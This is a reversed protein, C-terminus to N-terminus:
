NTFDKYCVGAESFLQGLQQFRPSIRVKYPHPCVSIGFVEELNIPKDDASEFKFAYFLKSAATFLEKHALHLGVCVRRGGGFTYINTASESIKEHLFRDPNFAEFDAQDKYSSQTVSKVNILMQTGKPIVYGDLVDDEISARPVLPIVPRFRLTEKISARVLPLFPLDTPNPLRTKNLLNDVEEFLRDQVSPNNAMIAIMWNLTTATTDLGALLMDLMLLKIDKKTLGEEDMRYLLDKAFCSGFQQAVGKQREMEVETELRNIERMLIDDIKLKLERMERVVQNPVVRLFPM